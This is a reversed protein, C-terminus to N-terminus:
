LGWKFHYVSFNCSTSHKACSPMSFSHNRGNKKGWILSDKGVHWIPCPTRCTTIEVPWKVACSKLYTCMAQSFDGPIITVGDGWPFRIWDTYPKQLQEPHGAKGSLLVADSDQWLEHANGLSWYCMPLRCAPIRSGFVGTIDRQVTPSLFRRGFRM